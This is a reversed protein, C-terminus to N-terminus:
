TPSPGSPTAPRRSPTPPARGSRASTGSSASPAAPPPTATPAGAGPSSSYSASRRDALLRAGARDRRAGHVLAPGAARPPARAGRREGLGRGGRRRRAAPHRVAICASSGRARRRHARRARMTGAIQRTRATDPDRGPVGPRRREARPPAAAPHARRSPPRAVALLVLLLPPIASAQWTLLVPPGPVPSRGHRPAAGDLWDAVRQAVGGSMVGGLACALMAVAPGGLRASTRGAPAGARRHRRAHLVCPSAGLAVVLLGQVVAIVASRRPRRPARRHRELRPTVLGAYVATLVCCPSRGGPAAPPRPGTADADDLPRAAAGAASWGRARRGRRWSSRRTSSRPRPRGARRPRGTRRDHRPAAAGLPPPSPSSDPPPTPPACGPSRAPPRVLLRAPRAGTGDTQRGRTPRAACRSSPSTPAGPATPSGGSCARHARRAGPRRAGPPPGAREVLRRRAPRLPLGALVHKRVCVRPAPASGPSSTSPSRAPPPSWCCPSPSRSLRVCCATSRPRPAPARRSPPRMWHALNAVM